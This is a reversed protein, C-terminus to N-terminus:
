DAFPDDDEMLDSAAANDKPLVYVASYDYAAKKKPDTKPRNAIRTVTLLGGKELTKGGARLIADRVATKMFSKVYLTRVGDDDPVDVAEGDAFKGRASTALTIVLQRMADGNPFRKVEGTTFDTQDRTAFSLVTGTYSHGVVPFQASVGGGSMLFDQVESM